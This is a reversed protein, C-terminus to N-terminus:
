PASLLGKDNHPDDGPPNSMRVLCVRMSVVALTRAVAIVRGRLAAAPVRLAAYTKVHAVRMAAVSVTVALKDIEACTPRCSPYTDRSLRCEGETM